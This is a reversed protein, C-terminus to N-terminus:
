ELFFFDRVVTSGPFGTKRRPLFSILSLLPREPRCYQLFFVQHNGVVPSGLPISGTSYSPLFVSFFFLIMGHHLNDSRFSGHTKVPLSLQPRWSSHPTCLPCSWLLSPTVATLQYPSLVVTKPKRAGAPLQPFYAAMFEYLFRNRGLFALPPGRLTKFRLFFPPLDLIKGFEDCPKCGPAARSVISWDVDEMLFFLFFSIRTV